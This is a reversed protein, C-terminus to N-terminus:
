RVLTEIASALVCGTIPEGDVDIAPAAFIFRQYGADYSL